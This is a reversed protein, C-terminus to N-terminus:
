CAMPKNLEQAIPGQRPFPNLFHLDIELVNLGNQLQESVIRLPKAAHAVARSLTAYVAL